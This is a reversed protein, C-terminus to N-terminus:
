SEFRLTNSPIQSQCPGDQITPLPPAHPCIDLLLLVAEPNHTAIGAGLFGGQINGKTIATNFAGKVCPLFELATIHTTWNCMVSKAQRM